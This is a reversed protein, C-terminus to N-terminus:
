ASYTEIFCVTPTASAAIGQILASTELTISAGGALRFGNGATVTAIGIWVVISADLNLITVSRRGPRAAVITAATTSMAVQGNALTDSANPVFAM